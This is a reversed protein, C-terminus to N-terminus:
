KTKLINYVKIDRSFGKLTIQGVLEAEIKNGVKGLFRESTLIQGGKAEDCLRSALNTVTGIVTYDWFKEFGIAGITAHGSAVGIGFDLNYGKPQWKDRLLALRDRVALTMELAREEHNSIEVPDNFFFMMGDGALRGITADYKLGQTGAAEYYQALVDMVEEPEAQEAFATFGRLDIFVVTVDKRHSRILDQNGKAMVLDAVQPSFFRKLNGLQNVQEAVRHELVKGWVALEAAQDQVKDHLDRIRVLSRVRTLLEDKNLPKALFDDAGAELGKVREQMPDHGTVLIIPIIQRDYRKRIERCLAYGDYKPMSVDSLVLCPIEKDLFSLAERATSAISVKYGNIELLRRMVDAVDREDDVVLIHKLAEPKTETVPALATSM